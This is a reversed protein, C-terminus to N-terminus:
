LKKRKLGELHKRSFYEFLVDPMFGLLKTGMALLLPFQIVRKEKKIGRVIIGAAKEASTSLETVDLEAFNM